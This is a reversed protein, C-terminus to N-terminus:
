NILKIRQKVKLDVILKIQEQFVNRSKLGPQVNKDIIIKQVKQTWFQLDDGTGIASNWLVTVLNNDEGPIKTRTMTSLFRFPTQSLLRKTFYTEFTRRFYLALRNVLIEKIMYAIQENTLFNTLLLPGKKSIGILM